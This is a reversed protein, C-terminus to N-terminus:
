THKKVVGNEMIFNNNKIDKVFFYVKISGGLSRGSSNKQPNVTFEPISVIKFEKGSYGNKILYSKINNSITTDKEFVKNWWLSPKSLDKGSLNIQTKNITVSWPNKPDYPDNKVPYYPLQPSSWANTNSETVGGNSSSYVTAIANGNYTLLQDTTDVVAKTSNPYWHYGGYVQHTQTDTIVKGVYGSSVAYSRASVAQAKLAELQWLAPMEHPVVGKLYDEFPININTPRIYEGSELDFKMTGLYTKATNGYLTIKNSTSYSKPNITVTSEFEGIKESQDYLALKDQEIKITYKKNPTLMLSSDGSISYEGTFLFDLNNRDGVYNILKVSLTSNAATVNSNPFLSITFFALAILIIWKRM